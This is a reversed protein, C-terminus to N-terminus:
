DRVYEFILTLNNKDPSVLVNDIVSDDSSVSGGVGQWWLWTKKIM